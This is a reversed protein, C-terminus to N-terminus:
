KSIIPPERIVEEDIKAAMHIISLILQSLQSEFDPRSILNKLRDDKLRQHESSLLVLQNYLDYDSIVKLRDELLNLSEKVRNDALLNRVVPAVERLTTGELLDLINYSELCEDCRITRVGKEIRRNLSKVKFHYPESRGNRSACDCSIEESCVLNKFSNHIEHFASKIIGLLEKKHQGRILLNIRNQLIEGQILAYANEYQLIVGFKWYYKEVILEHLKVILRPIIGSPMFKYHYSLRLEKNQEFVTRSIYNFDFDPQNGPLLQPVLYKGNTVEFCIEFKKMLALLERKNGTFAKDKWMKFLHHDDFRGKRDLVGQNDMVLYVAKTAWEYNLIVIDSLEIEDQFHLIIGLDHLYDSLFLAPKENLQFDQCIEFYEDVPIHNRGSQRIEELRDKIKFWAKPLVSGLLPTLDKDTIIKSLQFRLNHITQVQSPLSDEERKM